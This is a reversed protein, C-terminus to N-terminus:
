NMGAIVMPDLPKIQVSRFYVKSDPDHAQLAITGEHLQRHPRNLFRPETYQTITKGDIQIRISRDLVSIHLTFWQNDQVPSSRKDCVAYLSGTKKYDPHTNNIQAEYGRNPWGREQYKTHFYIGSNSGPEALVEAKLEFDKFTASNVPGTYFLHSRPGHVLISGKEVTCSHKNESPTWGTLDKGNFLQFFGSGDPSLESKQNKGPTAAQVLNTSTLLLLIFPAKQNAPSKM